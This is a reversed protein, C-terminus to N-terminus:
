WAFLAKMDLEVYTNDAAATWQSSVKAEYAIRITLDTADYVVNMINDDMAAARSVLEGEELTVTKATTSPEVWTTGRNDTYGAGSSLGYLVGHTRAYREQYSLSDNMVARTDLASPGNAATQYMRPAYGMAEEGRYVACGLSKGTQLPVGYPDDVLYGESTRVYEGDVVRFKRVTGSADIEAANAEGNVFPSTTSTDVRLVKGDRGYIYLQPTEQCNNSKNGYTYSLTMGGNSEYVAARANAGRGAVDGDAVMFNYGLTSPRSIRDVPNYNTMLPAAQDLTGATALVERLKFTWPQGKLKELTSTSGVESVVIGKANMGAMAGLLGTYGMTAYASGTTPKYVVVLAQTALGTDAAWDLNRSAIMKGNETRNGWAAFFSCTRGPLSLSSPAHGSTGKLNGRNQYFTDLESSTGTMMIKNAASSDEEAYANLDSVNTLALLRKMVTNLDAGTPSTYTVGAERAGELVASYEDKLDKSIFPDMYGYARDLMSSLKQEAQTANVGMRSGMYVMMAEWTRPIQSGLLFGYQRGMESPTGAVRLVYLPMGEPTIIKALVGENFTGIVEGVPFTTIDALDMRAPSSTTQGLHSATTSQSGAQSDLAPALLAVTTSLFLGAIRAYRFSRQTQM